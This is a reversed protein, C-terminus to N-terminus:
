CSKQIDLLCSAKFLDREKRLDFNRSICRSFLSWHVYYFSCIKIVNKGITPVLNPDFEKDSETYCKILATKGVTSEGLVLVKYTVDYNKKKLSM